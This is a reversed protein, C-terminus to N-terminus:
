ASCLHYKNRITLFTVFICLTKSTRLSLYPHLFSCLPLFRVGSSVTTGMRLVWETDFVSVCTPSTKFCCLFFCSDPAMLFHGEQPPSPLTQLSASFPPVPSSLAPTKSVASCDLVRSEPSTPLWQRPRDPLVCVVLIVRPFVARCSSM